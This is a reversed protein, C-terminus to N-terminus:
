LKIPGNSNNNSQNISQSNYTPQIAFSSQIAKASERTTKTSLQNFHAVSFLTYSYPVEHFYLIYCPVTCLLSSIEQNPLAFRWERPVYSGDNASIFSVQKESASISGAAAEDTGGDYYCGISRSCVLASRFLATIDQDFSPCTYQVALLVRLRPCPTM